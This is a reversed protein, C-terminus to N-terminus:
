VELISSIGKAEKVRAQTPTAAATTLDDSRGNVGGGPVQGSSNTVRAGMQRGPTLVMSSQEWETCISAQFLLIINKNGM